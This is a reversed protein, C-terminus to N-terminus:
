NSISANPSNNSIVLTGQYEGTGAMKGGATPVLIVQYSSNGAGMTFPDQLDYFQDVERPIRDAAAVGPMLAALGTAYSRNDLLFQEQRQAIDMLFAQAAANYSKVKYKAYNPVAISALVAIIAVVIMMEVLTFGNVKRKGSKLNTRHM